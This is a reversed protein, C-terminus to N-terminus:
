AKEGVVGYVDERKQIDLPIQKRTGAVGGEGELDVEVTVWAGKM